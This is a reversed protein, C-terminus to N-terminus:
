KAEATGTARAARVNEATWQVLENTFADVAATLSKVAGVANPAAPRRFDFERQAILRRDTSSLLSARAKLSASSEEPTTFHQSFDELEIRLTFDSQASFGPAVAGQAAAAFGSYIRDSMLAAPPASWRSMGYVQPRPVDEYLLRYVIGNEDLWPPARVPTVLLTAPIAPNSRAHSPAPGFDYLTPVDSTPQRFACSSALVCSALALLARQFTRSRTGSV